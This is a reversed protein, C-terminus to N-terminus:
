GAWPPRAPRSSTRPQGEDSISKGASRGELWHIIFPGVVLALVFAIGATGLSFTTM